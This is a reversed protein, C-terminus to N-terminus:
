MRFGVGWRFAFGGMPLTGMDGFDLDLVKGYGFEMSSSLYYRAQAVPIRLDVGGTAMGGPAFASRTIQNLNDDHETDDDLRILGRVGLAQVTVFPRLNISLPLDAKVGLTYEDGYFASQFTPPEDTEWGGSTSEVTMGTSGRHYGAIAAMRDHFAYGVRVGYTGFTETESFLDWSADNAHLSGLELSVEHDAALAPSACLSLGLLTIARNM